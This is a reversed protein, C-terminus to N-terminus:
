SLEGHRGLSGDFAVRVRGTGATGDSVGGAARLLPEEAARGWPNGNPADPPHGNRDRRWVQRLRVNM